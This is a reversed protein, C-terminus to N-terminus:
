MLRKSIEVALRGLTKGAADVVYRKRTKEIVEPKVRLTSNLDKKTVEM